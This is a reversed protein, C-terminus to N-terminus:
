TYIAASVKVETTKGPFFYADDNNLRMKLKLPLELAPFPKVSELM